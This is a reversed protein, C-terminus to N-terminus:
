PDYIKLELLLKSLFEFSQQGVDIPTDPFSYLEVTLFNNYKAQKLANLYRAFPIDGDGPVLHYHKLNKIDEIHVNWIRGALSEITKEPHEDILYSHGIDLNAGLLPSDVKHILECLENAREILLGPEYEIGIRIDYQHAYNCINKLSDTFYAIAKEPLCGPTPKGSTISICPAGIKHALKIAQYVIEERCQRVKIDANTLAPEFVNEPPAPSFFSNATNANLNSVQLSHKSLSEIVTEITKEHTSPPYLHPKECLIEIGAYGLEAIHDIASILDTNTFANTSYALKM